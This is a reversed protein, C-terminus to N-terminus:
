NIADTKEKNFLDMLMESHLKVIENFSMDLKEKEIFCNTDKFINLMVDFISSTYIWVIDGKILPRKKLLKRIEKNVEKIFLYYTKESIKQSIESLEKYKLKKIDKM